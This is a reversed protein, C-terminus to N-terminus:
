NGKLKITKVKELWAGMSGAERVPTNLGLQEVGKVRKKRRIEIQWGKSSYKTGFVREMIGGNEAGKKCSIEVQGAMRRYRDVVSSKKVYNKSEASM